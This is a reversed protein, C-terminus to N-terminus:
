MCFVKHSLLFCVHKPVLRITLLWEPFFLCYYYCSLSTFLFRSLRIIFRIMNLLIMQPTSSPIMGTSTHCMVWQAASLQFQFWVHQAHECFQESKNSAISIFCFWFLFLLFFYTAIFSCNFAISRLLYLGSSFTGLVSYICHFCDIKRRQREAAAAAADALYYCFISLFFRFRFVMLWTITATLEKSSPNQCIFTFQLIIILNSCECGCCIPVFANQRTTNPITCTWLILSLFPFLSWLWDLHLPDFWRFLAFTHM